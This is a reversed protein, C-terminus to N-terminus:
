VAAAVQPDYFKSKAFCPSLLSGGGMSIDKLTPTEMFPPVGLDDMKTPNEMFYVM